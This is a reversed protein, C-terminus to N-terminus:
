NISKGFRAFSEALVVVKFWKDLTERNTVGPLLLFLLGFAFFAVSVDHLGPQCGTPVHDTIRAVLYDQVIRGLFSLVM